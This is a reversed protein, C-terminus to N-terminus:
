VSSTARRSRIQNQFWGFSVKRSTWLLVPIQRPRPAVAGRLCSLLYVWWRSAKCGAKNNGPRGGGRGGPLPSPRAAWNFTRGAAQWRLQGQAGWPVPPGGGRCVTATLVRPGSPDSLITKINRKQGGEGRGTHTHKDSSTIKKWNFNQPSHSFFIYLGM